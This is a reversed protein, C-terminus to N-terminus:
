ARSVPWPMIKGSPSASGSGVSLGGALGPAPLAPSAFGFRGFSCTTLYGRSVCGQDMRGPPRWGAAGRHGRRRLAPASERWRKERRLFYQATRLIRRQKVWTVSGLAGGYEASGRQRVEVIALVAGDLCVLDLEGAKCRLNRALIKLGRVQLYRAALQEAAAGRALHADNM